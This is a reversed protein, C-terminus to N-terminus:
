SVDEKESEENVTMDVINTLSELLKLYLIEHAERPNNTAIKGTIGLRIKKNSDIEYEINASAEILEVGEISSKKAENLLQKNLKKIDRKLSKIEDDRKQIPTKKKKENKVIVEIKEVSKDVNTVKDPM